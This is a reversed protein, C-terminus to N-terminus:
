RVTSTGDLSHQAPRQRDEGQDGPREHPQQAQREAQDADRERGQEREQARQEHQRRAQETASRHSCSSPAAPPAPMARPAPVPWVELAVTPTAPVGASQQPQRPSHQRPRQASLWPASCPRSPISPRHFRPGAGCRHRDASSAPQFPTTGLRYEAAKGPIASRPSPEVDDVGVFFGASAPNKTQLRTGVM